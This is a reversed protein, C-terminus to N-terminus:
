KLWGRKRLPADWPPDDGFKAALFDILAKVKLSRRQTSSYIALFSYSSLTHETLLAVLKGSLLSESAVLTPLCVIGGGSVAFDHLLHVSNSQVNGTLNMTFSKQGRHFTWRNRTPYGSYVGVTHELFERPHKPSSHRQLYDPSACFLRRVPFLQRRVLLESAPPFIQFAVDFGEETPDGLRDSVTIDIELEPYRRTFEALHEGFHRVAYGPLMKLRLKGVQRGRSQRMQETLADVGAVMDRCSGYFSEGVESLRVHRTTRHFLPADVYRELQQVRNTVVSNAIGLQRAAEAFSNTEAVRVFAEICLLRDM